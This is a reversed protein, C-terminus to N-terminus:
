NTIKRGSSESRSECDTSGATERKKEQRFCLMQKIKM